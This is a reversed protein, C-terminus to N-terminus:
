NPDELLFGDSFSPFCMSFLAIVQDQMPGCSADAGIHKTLERKMPDRAINIVCTNDSLLSTPTTVSVGFDKLLWQLWTVGVTLLIM